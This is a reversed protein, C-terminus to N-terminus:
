QAEEVILQVNKRGEWHNWSLRYAVRAFRDKLPFNPDINFQIAEMAQKREGPKQSLVMRRHKVGVIKSTVIHVDDAMFLPAPNGTGHPKVADLSDLLESSINDFRLKCDITIKPIFDEPRTSQAVAKEFDDAFAQINDSKIKLGAAMIHGGFRDLTNRCSDLTRCLDLGPISRASGKGIGDQLSILITPRYYKEVLKSAVIGLVGEHWGKGSMVLTRNRLIQPFKRVYQDIEDLLEKELNQRRINLKGLLVAKERASDLDNDILLDFATDAHGIRGAANLRPSLRFAIDETDISGIPTGSSEALARLGKRHGSRIMALGTKSLIRNEHILPVMDAVTGLAVLDSSQKLNPETRGKWVGKERLHKRLAIILFYAVGVGSLHGLGSPCDKRNPNIVAFAEPLNSSVQHHDTVIVDIGSANAKRVADHSGSGCDATILLSIKKPVLYHHVHHAQFGYGEEIRHPIHYFVDAGLFKFFEYLCATATIGDVDYDGFILIHEKKDLARTIRHVAKTMDAMSFPSRLRSLAPSLFHVADEGEQIGRNVLISAVVPHVHAANIIRRVAEPNPKLVEWSKEM